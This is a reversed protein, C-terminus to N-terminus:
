FTSVHDFVVGDACVMDGTSLLIVDGVVIDHTSIKVKKEDRIVTVQLM